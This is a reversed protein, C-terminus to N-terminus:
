KITRTPERMAHKQNPNFKEMLAVNNKQLLFVAVMVLHVKQVVLFTTEVFKVRVVPRKPHQFYIKM